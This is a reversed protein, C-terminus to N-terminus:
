FVNLEYNKVQQTLQLYSVIDFESVFELTM